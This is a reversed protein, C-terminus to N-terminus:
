YPLHDRYLNGLRLSMAHRSVNYRKALEAVGEDSDLYSIADDSDLFTKPMLLCAAFYNAEIEEVNTAQTSEASRFNVRYDRDFHSGIGDHLVFHAYEHAVTFRQRVRPHKDNVGITAAHGLRVLLGSVNGLDGKRIEVGANRALREVPVPAGRIQAALLIGEVLREIRSYRARLPTM